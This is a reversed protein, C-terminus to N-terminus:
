INHGLYHHHIENNKINRIQEQMVPDIEVIMKVTGLFNGSIDQYIKENERFTLNHKALFKVASVIRVM